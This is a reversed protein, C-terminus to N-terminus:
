KRGRTFACWLGYYKAFQRREDLTLQSWWTGLELANPVSLKSPEFTLPNQIMSVGKAAKEPAVPLDTTTLTETRRRMEQVVDAFVQSRSLADIAIIDVTREVAQSKSPPAPAAPVAPPASPPLPVGVGIVPRSWGVASRAKENSADLTLINYAVYEKELKLNKETCWALLPALKDVNGRADAYRGPFETASGKGKEVKSIEEKPISAAGYRTKIKVFTETTEVIQGEVKTGNKRYIVDTAATEKLKPELALIQSRVQDAEHQFTPISEALIRTKLWDIDEQSGRKGAALDELRKRDGPLLYGRYGPPLATFSDNINQLVDPPIAMMVTLVGDGPNGEVMLAPHRVLKLLENTAEPFEMYLKMQKDGRVFDVQELAPGAQWNNVWVNLVKAADGPSMTRFDRQAFGIIQDNQALYPELIVKEGVKALEGLAHKIKGEFLAVDAQVQAWEPTLNRFRLCESIVTSMNILWVNAFVTHKLELVQATTYLPAPGPPPAPLDPEPTPAPRFPNKSSSSSSGGLGTLDRDTKGTQGRGDDDPTSKGGFFFVAGAAVAIVAAIAAGIMMKIRSQKRQIELAIEGATQPTAQGPKRGPIRVVQACSPCSVEHGPTTGPIFFNWGCSCNLSLRAM